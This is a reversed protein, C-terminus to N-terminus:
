AVADGVAHVVVDRSGEVWALFFRNLSETAGDGVSAACARNFPDNRVVLSLVMEEADLV